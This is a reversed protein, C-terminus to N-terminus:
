SGFGWWNGPQGSGQATYVIGDFYLAGAKNGNKEPIIPILMKFDVYWQDVDKHALTDGYIVRDQGYYGDVEALLQWPGVKGCSDSTTRSRARLCLFPTKFMNSTESGALETGPSNIASVQNYPSM